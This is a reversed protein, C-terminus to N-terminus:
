ITDGVVWEGIERMFEAIATETIGRNRLVMVMRADRAAILAGKTIEQAAALAAETSVITHLPGWMIRVFGKGDRQKSEVMFDLATEDPNSFPPEGSM